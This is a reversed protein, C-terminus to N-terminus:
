RRNGFPDFVDLEGTRKNLASFGLPTGSADYLNSGGYNNPVAFNGTVPDVRPEYGPLPQVSSPPYPFPQGRGSGGVGPATNQRKLWDSLQDRALDAGQQALEERNERVWKGLKNEGKAATKGGQSLSREFAKKGKQILAKKGKQILAKEGKQILAKEGKQILAKEVAPGAKGCGALCLALLFIAAGSKHSVAGGMTM